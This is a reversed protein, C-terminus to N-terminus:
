DNDLRGLQRIISSVVQIYLESNGERVAMAQVAKEKLLKRAFGPTLGDLDNVNYYIDALKILKTRDPVGELKLCDLRKREARNADPRDIKSTNTLEVVMQAVDQGFMEALEHYEVQTDEIVDHLFAATIQEEDGGYAEVIKAVGIPHTIYPTTGNKRFRNEETLAREDHAVTAFQLAKERM